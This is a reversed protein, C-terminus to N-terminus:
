SYFVYNGTKEREKKTNGAIGNNYISRLSLILLNSSAIVIEGKKLPFRSMRRDRLCGIRMIFVSLLIATNKERKKFTGGLYWCVLRALSGHGSFSCDSNAWVTTQKILLHILKLTLFSTCDSIGSPYIFYDEESFFVVIIVECFKRSFFQSTQLQLASHQM